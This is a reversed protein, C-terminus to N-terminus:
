SFSLYLLYLRHCRSKSFFLVDSHEYTADKLTVVHCAKMLGDSYMLFDLTWCVAGQGM